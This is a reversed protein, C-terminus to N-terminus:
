HSDASPAIVPGVKRMLPVLVVTAAFGIVLLVYVDGFTMTLAERYTLLWLQKLAYAEAAYPDAGNAFRSSLGQVAASMSPNAENLREALRFFHLNTRDNLITSCLAIGLAGGLNRMLNFLGSALRLRAPALGGLTLTVTPAVSFQQAM